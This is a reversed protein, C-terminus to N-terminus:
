RELPGSEVNDILLGGDNSDPALSTFRVYCPGWMSDLSDLSLRRVREMPFERKRLSLSHVKKGDVFVDCRGGEMTWQLAVDIWKDKPFHVNSDTIRGDEDLDLMFLAGDEARNEVTPTTPVKARVKSDIHLTHIFHDTLMFRHGQFGADLKIRMALRGNRLSPFNWIATCPETASERKIRLVMTGPADPHAIREVGRSRYVTWGDLNLTGLPRTDLFRSFDDQATTADLWDIDVKCLFIGIPRQGGIAYLSTNPEGSRSDVGRRTTMIQTGHDGPGHDNINLYSESVERCGRWTRGYDHSVLGHLKERGGHAYKQAPDRWDYCAHVFMVLRGDNLQRVVGLTNSSLVSRRSTWTTGEDWSIYEQLAGADSRVTLYIGYNVSGDDHDMVFNIRRREGYQQFSFVQNRVFKQPSVTWHSGEDDSYLFREGRVKRDFADNLDGVVVFMYLRGTPAAPTPPLRWLRTARFYNENATYIDHKARENEDPLGELNAALVVKLTDPRIRKWDSAPYSLHSSLRRHELLMDETIRFEHRVGEPLNLRDLRPDGPAGDCHFIGSLDVALQRIGRYKGAYPFRSEDEMESQFEDILQSMLIGGETHPIRVDGAGGRKLIVPGAPSEADAPASAVILLLSLLAIRTLPPSGYPAQPARDFGGAPRITQVSGATM